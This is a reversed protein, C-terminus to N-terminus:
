TLMHENADGCDDFYVKWYCASLERWWWGTKGDQDLELAL